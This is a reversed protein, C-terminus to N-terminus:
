YDDYDACDNDCDWMFERRVLDAPDDDVDAYRDLAFVGETAGPFAKDLVSRLHDIDPFGMVGQDDPADARLAGTLTDPGGLALDPTLWRGRGGDARAIVWVWTGHSHLGGGWHPGDFDQDNVRYVAPEPCRGPRHLVVAYRCQPCWAHTKPNDPEPDLLQRTEPDAAARLLATYKGGAAKQLARARQAATPQNKPM